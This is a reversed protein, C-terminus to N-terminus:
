FNSPFRVMPVTSHTPQLVLPADVPRGDQQDVLDLLANEYLDHSAVARNDGQSAFYSSTAYYALMRHFSKPIFPVDDTSALHPIAKYVIASLAVASNPTPSLLLTSYPTDSVADRSLGAIRYNKISGTTDNQTYFDQIGLYHLGQTKGTEKVLIPRLVEVGLSYSAIGNITTIPIIAEQFAFVYRSNLDDIGDNLWLALDTDYSTDEQLGADRRAKQLLIAQNM